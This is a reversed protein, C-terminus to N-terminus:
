CMQARNLMLFAFRMRKAIDFAYSSGPIGKKFQYTPALHGQDFEMSGNIAKMSMRLYWRGM